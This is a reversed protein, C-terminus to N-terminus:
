EQDGYRTAYIVRAMEKPAEFTERIRLLCCARVLDCARKGLKPGVRLRAVKWGNEQAYQLKRADNRKRSRTHHWTWSDVEMVLKLKPFAFDFIFPGLRYEPIFHEGFCQLAISVKKEAPSEQGPRQIRVLNQLCQLCVWVPPRNYKKSPFFRGTEPPKLKGAIDRNRCRCCLQPLQRYNM